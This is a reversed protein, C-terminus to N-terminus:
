DGSGIVSNIINVISNPVANPQYLTQTITTTISSQDTGQMTENFEIVKAKLLNGRERTTGDPIIPYLNMIITTTTDESTGEQHIITDVDYDYYQQIIRTNNGDQSIQTVQNGGILQQQQLDLGSCMDVLYGDVGIPVTFSNNVIEKIRAKTSLSM